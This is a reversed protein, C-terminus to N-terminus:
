GNNWEGQVFPGVRLTAWMGRKAVLNLFRVVDNQGTFNFQLILTFPSDSSFQNIKVSTFNCDAICILDQGQPLSQPYIYLLDYTQIGRMQLAKHSM